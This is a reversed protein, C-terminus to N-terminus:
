GQLVPCEPMWDLGAFVGDIVAFFMPDYTELEARTDIDNHIGNPPNASLNTNFYSQVGEAWYEEVNSIAYTNAWLGTALANDYAAQLDAQLTSGPIYNLGYDKFTHAFEHLFINEGFYGDQEYCLLNEEAGSVLPRALTAGLGRARTDWNTQPFADNLDSHEPMDTTVESAAMIGIRIGNDSLHTAARPEASLMIMAIHHAQILAEDPVLRSSVLPIGMVDCYKQYFPDLNLIAPVPTIECTAPAPMLLTDSVPAISEDTFSVNISYTMQYDGETGSLIVIDLWYDGTVPVDYIMGTTTTAVIENNLWLNLYVQLDGSLVDTRVYLVDGSNLAPPYYRDFYAEANNRLTGSVVVPNDQAFSTSNMFLCLL